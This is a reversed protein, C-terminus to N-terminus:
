EEETPWAAIRSDLVLLYTCMASAQTSLRFQEDPHVDEFKKSNIFTHLKTLRDNLEDREALMRLQYPEYSM